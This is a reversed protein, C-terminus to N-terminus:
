STWFYRPRDPDRWFLNAYFTEESSGSGCKAAVVMNQPVGVTAWAGLLIATAMPLFASTTSFTTTRTVIINM